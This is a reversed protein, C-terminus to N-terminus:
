RSPRERMHSIGSTVEEDCFIKSCRAVYPVGTSGRKQQVEHRNGCEFDKLANSCTIPLRATSESIYSSM